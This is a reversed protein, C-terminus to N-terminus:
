TGRNEADESIAREYEEAIANQIDALEGWSMSGYANLDIVELAVEDPTPRDAPDTSREAAGLM